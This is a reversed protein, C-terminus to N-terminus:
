KPEVPKQEVEGEATITLTNGECVALTQFPYLRKATVPKGYHTVTIDSAFWKAQKVFEAAPRTDIGHPATIRAEQSFM